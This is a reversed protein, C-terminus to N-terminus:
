FDSNAIEQCDTRLFDWLSIPRLQASAETGNFHYCSGQEINKGLPWLAQGLRSYAIRDTNRLFEVVSNM